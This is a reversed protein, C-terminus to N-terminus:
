MQFICGLESKALFFLLFVQWEFVEQCVSVLLIWLRYNSVMTCYGKNKKKVAPSIEPSLFNFFCFSLVQSIFIDNNQAHCVSCENNFKLLEPMENM